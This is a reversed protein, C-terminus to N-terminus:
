GSPNRQRFNADLFELAVQNFLAGAEVSCVHGAGPLVRLTSGDTRALERAPTLFMYDHEGMVHLVPVRPRQNALSALVDDVSHRLSFWRAFEEAGLHVADRYFYRRTQRHTPGPMIAWAYIRYLAMYPLLPAAMAGARMLLSPVTTLRAVTGALVASRVMEPHRLMVLRALITGLSVAMFHCPGCNLERLLCALDDSLAEFSYTSAPTVDRRHGHGPLELLVLNFRRGVDRRQRFWISSTAGAGPVLVLWDAPDHRRVVRARFGRCRIM